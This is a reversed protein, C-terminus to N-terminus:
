KYCFYRQGKVKPIVKGNFNEQVTKEFKDYDKQPLILKVSVNQDFDTALIKIDGNVISLLKSYKDYDLSIEVEVSNIVSVIKAQEIGSVVSSSYARVLGGTGLKIGGFYRTVVAVVKFLGRGKLVELMPLGATSSPEGDDSFKATLGQEDAIYAYCNHTALSYQKKISKVFDKAEDESDVGKINCIFKSKELIITSEASGLITLYEEKM